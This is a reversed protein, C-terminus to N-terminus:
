EEHPFDVFVGTAESIRRMMVEWAESVQVRSLETTSTKGYMPKIVWKYMEKIAEETWPVEMHIVEEYFRKREWGADNLAEALLRCGLHLSANQKDTRKM